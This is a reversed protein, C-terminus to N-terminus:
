ARGCIVVHEHLLVPLRRLARPDHLGAPFRLTGPYEEDVLQAFQLFPGALRLVREVRIQRLLRVYYGPSCQNQKIKDLRPHQSPPLHAPVDIIWQQDPALLEVKSQVRQDRGESRQFGVQELQSETAEARDLVVGADLFQVVHVHVQRVHGHLLM